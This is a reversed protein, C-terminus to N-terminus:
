LGRGGCFFQRANYRWLKDIHPLVVGVARYFLLEDIAIRRNSYGFAM